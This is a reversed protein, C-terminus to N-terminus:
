NSNPISPSGIGVRSLAELLSPRNNNKCVLIYRLTHAGHLNNVHLLTHSGHSKHLTFFVIEILNHVLNQSKLIQADLM